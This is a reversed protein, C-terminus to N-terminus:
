AKARPHANMLIFESGIYLFIPGFIVPPAVCFLTCTVHMNGHVQMCTTVVQMHRAGVGGGGSMITDNM